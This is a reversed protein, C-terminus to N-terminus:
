YTYHHGSDADSMGLDSCTTRLALVPMHYFLLKYQLALTDVSPSLSIILVDM